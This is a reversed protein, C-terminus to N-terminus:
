YYFLYFIQIFSKLSFIICFFVVKSKPPVGFEFRNYKDNLAIEEGWKDLSFPPNAVVVDFKRLEGKDTFKPEKITDGWEIKAEDGIEHLYMNM